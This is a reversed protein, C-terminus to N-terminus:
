RVLPMSSLVKRISSRDRTPELGIAMPEGNCESILVHAIGATTLRTDLELLHAQDRASLAVAVTGPPHVM